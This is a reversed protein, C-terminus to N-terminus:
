RRYLRAVLGVVVWIHQVVVEIDVVVVPHDVDLKSEGARGGALDM